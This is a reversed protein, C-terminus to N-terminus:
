YGVTSHGKRSPLAYTDAPCIQLAVFLAPAVAVWGLLLTLHRDGIHRERWEIINKM